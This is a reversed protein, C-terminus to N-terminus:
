SSKAPPPPFLQPLEGRQEEFCFFPVKGFLVERQKPRRKGEQMLGQLLSMSDSM